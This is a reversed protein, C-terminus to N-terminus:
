NCKGMEVEGTGSPADIFIDIDIMIGTDAILSCSALTLIIYKIM